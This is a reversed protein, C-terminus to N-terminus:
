EYLIGDFSVYKIQLISKAVSTANNIVDKLTTNSDFVKYDEVSVIDDNKLDICKDNLIRNYYDDFERSSKYGANLLLQKPISLLSEYYGRIIPKNALETQNLNNHVKVWTYGGGINIGDRLASKIAKVADEYRYYLEKMEVETIGGVNIVTVGGKLNALRAEYFHKDFEDIDLTEDNLYTELMTITENYFEEDIKGGLISTQTEDVIIEDCYGIYDWLEGGDNEDQYDKLMMSYNFNKDVILGSTVCSLDNMLEIKRDGFGPNQIICVSKGSASMYGTVAQLAISGINNCFVVLPKNNGVIKPNSTLRLFPFLQNIDQINDNFIVTYVEKNIFRRSLGENIFQPAYYGSNIVMGKTTNIKTIKNTSEKVQINGYIGIEKVVNYLTRGINEDHSSISALHEVLEINNTIDIKHQNILELVNKSAIDFQKCIDWTSYNKDILEYGMKILANVLIMTSTTGDGSNSATKMSGLKVTDMILNEYVNSSSIHKAVTYGDQTTYPKGEWLTKDYGKTDNFLLTGGKIGLTSAVPKTIKDVSRLVLEKIKAEM